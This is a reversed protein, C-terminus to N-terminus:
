ISYSFSFVNPINITRGNGISGFGNNSTGLNKIYILFTHYDIISAFVSGSGVTLDDGFFPFVVVSQNTYPIFQTPIIFSSILYSAGNTLNNFTTAFDKITITILAGIQVISMQSVGLINSSDQSDIWNTSFLSKYIYTNFLSNTISGPYLSHQFQVGSSKIVTNYDITVGVGLSKEIISNIALPDPIEVSSLNSWTPVGSIISLVQNNSGNTITSLAGSSNYVVGTSSAIIPSAIFGSGTSTLVNGSSGYGGSVDKLNILPLQISALDSLTVFNLGTAPVVNNTVVLEFPATTTGYPELVDALHQFSPVAWLVETSQNGTLFQNSATGYNMPGDTLAQFETAHGGTGTSFIIANEDLNVQCYKLSQGEFSSPCDLLQTFETVGISSPINTNTRSM